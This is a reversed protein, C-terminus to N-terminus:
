GNSWNIEKELSEKPISVDPERMYNLLVESYAPYQSKDLLDKGINFLHEASVNTPSALKIHADVNQKDNFIKNWSGVILKKERDENLVDVIENKKMIRPEMQKVVGGPVPKYSCVAYEERKVDVISFITRHGTFSSFALADLSSVPVIPIGLGAALGQAVSLGIRMGTYYGPGIDLIIGELQTKDLNTNLLKNEIMEYILETHHKKSSITNLSLLEEEHIAVSIFDSSTSISLSKM